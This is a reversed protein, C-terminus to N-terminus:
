LLGTNVATRLIHCPQYRDKVRVGPASALSQAAGILSTEFQAVLERLVRIKEAHLAANYVTQALSLDHEIADTGIAPMSGTERSILQALGDRDADLLALDQADKNDDHIGNARRQIIENRAAELKAQRQRLREIYNTYTLKKEKAAALQKRGILINEVLHIPLHAVPAKFQMLNEIDTNLDNLAVQIMQSAPEQLESKTKVNAKAIAQHEKEVALTLEARANKLTRRAEITDEGDCLLADLESQAIEVQKRLTNTNM